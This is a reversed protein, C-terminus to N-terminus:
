QPKEFVDVQLLCQGIQTGDLALASAAEEPSAFAVCGTDKFAAAWTVQGVQQFLEQLQKWTVTGDLGGVWVKLSKDISKLKAIDGSKGKGKGKSMGKFGKLMVKEFMPKWVPTWSSKGKGKGKGKASSRGEPKTFFDVQIQTDGLWSGNLSTVAHQVEDPTRYAVCGTGSKPFCAAYITRGVQNFTQQLTKWDVGPSLNGIWVKQSADIAALKQMDEKPSSLGKMGKGKGKFMMMADPM